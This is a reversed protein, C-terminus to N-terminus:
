ACAALIQYYGLIRLETVRAALEGRWIWKVASTPALDEEAM